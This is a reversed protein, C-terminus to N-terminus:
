GAEAACEDFILTVSAAPGAPPVPPFGAPAAVDVFVVDGAPAAAFSRPPGDGGYDVESGAQAPPIEFDLHDAM